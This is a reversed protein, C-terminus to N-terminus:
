SRVGRVIEDKLNYILDLLEPLISFVIYAICILAMLSLFKAIVNHAIYFSDEGFWSYGYSVAVFVNRFLNLIYIVPVSALFAKIKRKRDAKIGLTAGTFLALSEIATCALIIHVTKGNLEICRGDLKLPFGLMNGLHVSLEATKTIILSNLFPIFVFPFYAICAVASFATVERLIDSNRRVVAIAFLTFFVVALSFVTTNFYDKASLFDPIKVLCAIAFIFWAAGGLIGKKTYVYLVMFILAILAIERALM